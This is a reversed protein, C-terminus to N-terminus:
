ILGRKGISVIQWRSKPSVYGCSLAEDAHRHIGERKAHDHEFCELAGIREYERFVKHVFQFFVFKPKTENVNISVLQAVDLNANLKHLKRAVLRIVVRLRVM